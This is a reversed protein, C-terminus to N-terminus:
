GELFARTATLARRIDNGDTAACLVKLPADEALQPNASRLFRAAVAGSYVADIARVIWFLADLREAVLHERPEDGEKTWHKVQRADALGLSAAAIRPGITNLLYAAKAQTSTTM